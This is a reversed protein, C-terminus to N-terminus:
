VLNKVTELFAVIREIGGHEPHIGLGSILEFGRRSDDIRHTEGNKCTIYLESRSPWNNEGSAYSIDKYHVIGKGLGGGYCFSDLTFAWGASLDHAVRAYILDNGTYQNQCIMKLALKKKNDSLQECYHELSDCSTHTISTVDWRYDVCMIEMGNLRIDGGSTMRNLQINDGQLPFGFQNFRDSNIGLAGTNQWMLGRSRDGRLFGPTQKSYVHCMLFESWIDSFIESIPDPPELKINDTSPVDPIEEIYIRAGTYGMRDTFQRVKDETIPQNPFLKQISDTVDIKQNTLSFPLEVMACIKKPTKPPVNSYAPKEKHISSNNSSTKWPLEVHEFVIHRDDLDAQSDAKINIKPCSLIGIYKKNEKRIPVNFKEGCLYIVSEDDILDALDEQTLATKDANAIISADTTKERLIAKKENLRELQATDMEQTDHYEVGLISCLQSNLDPANKDLERIAEAEDDYLCDELWEALKGSLFHGIAKEIDFHERLEEIDRRVMTGNAMELPFKIKKAM